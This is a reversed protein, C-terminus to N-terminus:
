KRHSGAPVQETIDSPINPPLQELPIQAIKAPPLKQVLELFEQLTLVRKDIKTKVAPASM